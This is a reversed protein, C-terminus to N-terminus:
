KLCGSSKKRTDVLLPPEAVVAAINARMSEDHDDTLSFGADM